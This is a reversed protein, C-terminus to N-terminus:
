ALPFQVRQNQGIHRDFVTREAAYTSAKEIFWFGDGICEAAILIRETNLGDLVYRFGKGEEGILNKVLKLIISSCKTHKM